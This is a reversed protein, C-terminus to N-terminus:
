PKYTHVYEDSLSNIYNELQAPIGMLLASRFGKTGMLKGSHGDLVTLQIGDESQYIKKGNAQLFLLNKKKQKLKPYM